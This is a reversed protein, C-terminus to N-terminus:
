LGFRERLEPPLCALVHEPISGPHTCLHDALLALFTQLAQNLPVEMTATASGGSRAASPAADELEAFAAALGAGLELGPGSPLDDDPHLGFDMAPGADVGAIAATFGTEGVLERAFLDSGGGTDVAEALGAREDLNVNGSQRDAGPALISEAEFGVQPDRSSGAEILGSLAPEDALGAFSDEAGPAPMGFEPQPDAASGAEILGHLQSEDALGAFSQEPDAITSAPDENEMSAPEPEGSAGFSEDDFDDDWSTADAAPASPAPDEFSEDDFTEDSFGDGSMEALTPASSAASGQAAAQEEILGLSLLLHVARLSAQPDEGLSDLLRGVRPNADLQSLLRDELQTLEIEAALEFCQWTKRLESDRAPLVSALATFPTVRLAELVLELPDLALPVIEQTPLPGTTFNFTGGRWCVLGAVVERVQAVLAAHLDDLTLTGQDVLIRGLAAGPTAKSAELAVRLQEATVFGSRLLVQGLRDQPDNSNAFAICGDGFWVTRTAAGDEFRLAGTKGALCTGLLVRAPHHSAVAGAAPANAAAGGVSRAQSEGDRVELVGLSCLAAALRDLDVQALRGMARLAGLTRTGDALSLLELERESFSFRVAEHRLDRAAKILCKSSPLWDELAPGAKLHRAAWLVLAEMDLELKFSEQRPADSEFFQSRGETWTLPRTVHMRQQKDLAAKLDGASLMGSEVLLDGLRARGKAQDLLQRAQLGQERSLMGLSGLVKDLRTQVDNSRGFIIRGDEVFLIAIGQAGRVFLMGTSRKELLDGLVCALPRESLPTGAFGSPDRTGAAAEGLYREALEWVKLVSLPKFLYERAGLDIAEQVYSRKQYIGSMMVIPVQALTKRLERLVGFGDLKPLLADLLVLQPPKEAALVLAEQGDAAVVAEHGMARLALQLFEAVQPDDEVILVLHPESM